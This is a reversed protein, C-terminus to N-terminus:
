VTCYECDEKIPFNYMRLSTFLIHQEQAWGLFLLNEYISVSPRHLITFPSSSVFFSNGCCLLVLATADSPNTDGPTPRSLAAITAPLAPSLLTIKARQVPFFLSLLMGTSTFPEAAGAIEPVM